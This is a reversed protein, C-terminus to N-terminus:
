VPHLHSMLILIYRDPTGLPLVQVMQLDKKLVKLHRKVEQMDIKIQRNGVKKEIQFTM